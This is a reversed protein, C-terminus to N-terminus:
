AQRGLGELRSGGFLLITMNFDGLVVRSCIAVCVRACLPILSDVCPAERNSRSASLFRFFLPSATSSVIARIQYTM